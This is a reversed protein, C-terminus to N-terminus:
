PHERTSGAKEAPVGSPGWTPQCQESQGLSLSATPQASISPSPSLYTSCLSRFVSLCLYLALSYNLCSPFPRSADSPCISLTQSLLPPSQYCLPFLYSISLPSLLLSRYFSQLVSPLSLCALTQAITHSPISQLMHQTDEATMAPDLALDNTDAVCPAMSM